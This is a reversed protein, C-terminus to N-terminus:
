SINNGDPFIVSQEKLTNVPMSNSVNKISFDNKEVNDETKVRTQSYEKREEDATDDSVYSLTQKMNEGDNVKAQREKDRLKQVFYLMKRMQWCDGVYESEIDKGQLSEVNLRKLLDGASIVTFEELGPDEKYYIKEGKRVITGMKIQRTKPDYVDFSVNCFGDIEDFVKGNDDGDMFTVTVVKKDLDTKLIPQNTLSSIWHFLMNPLYEYEDKKLSKTKMKMITDEIYM